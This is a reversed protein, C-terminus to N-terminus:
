AKKYQYKKEFEMYLITRDRESANLAFHNFSGDFVIAKGNINQSFEGNVNLYSSHSGQSDADITVHFQLLGEETLEPHNHTHLFSHAKLTSLACVKIGKIGDLLECTKPMHNRAYPLTTGAIALGYQLWNPNGQDSDDDDGWGLVWGYEEGQDLRSMIEEIVEDHEKGRRDVPMIGANLEDFEKKIVEWNKSIKELEPFQSLDYFAQM